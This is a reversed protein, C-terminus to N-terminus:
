VRRQKRMQYPECVELIGGDLDSILGYKSLEKLGHDGMYGLHYHWLRHTGQQDQVAAATDSEETVVSREIRYLNNEMRRDRIVVMAENSINLVGSRVHSSFSYGSWELYGLSVINKKLDPVHKVNTLMWVIGDFMRM